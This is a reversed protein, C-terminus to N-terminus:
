LVDRSQDHRAAGRTALIHASAGVSHYVDAAVGQRAEVADRAQLQRAELALPAPSEYPTITSLDPAPVEPQGLSLVAHLLVSAIDM